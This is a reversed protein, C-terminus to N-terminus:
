KVFKGGLYTVQNITDIRCLDKLSGDGDLVGGDDNLLIYEEVKRKAEDYGTAMVYYDTYKATSVKYLEEKM